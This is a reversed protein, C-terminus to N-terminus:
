ESDGDRHRRTQRHTLHDPRRPGSPLAAGPGVLLLVQPQFTLGLGRRLAGRAEPLDVARTLPSSAYGYQSLILRTRELAEGTRLWAVPDDAVTGLLLMTRPSPESHPVMAPAGRGGWRPRPIVGGPQTRAGFEMSGGPLHWQEPGAADGDGLLVGSRRSLAAVAECHDRRVLQVVRVGDAVSAAALYTALSRPMAADTLGGPAFGRVLPTMDLETMAPDDTLDLHEGRRVIPPDLRAFCSADAGTPFRNVTSRYAQRAVSARAHFVASGCGIVDWRGLSGPEPAPDLWM